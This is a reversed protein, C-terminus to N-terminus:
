VNRRWGKCYCKSIPRQTRRPFIQLRLGNGLKKRIPKEASSVLKREQRPKKQASHEPRSQKAESMDAAPSSCPPTGEPAIQWIEKLFLDEFSVEGDIAFRVEHKRKSESYKLIDAMYFLSDDPFLIRIVRGVIEKGSREENLTPWVFGIGKGESQAAAAEIAEKVEDKKTEDLIETVGRKVVYDVFGHCNKAGCMCKIQSEKGLRDWRYDFTLEEGASIERTSFFGIRIEAGVKWRRIECNPDCCHNMYRSVNAKRTADIFFNKGDDLEMIYRHRQGERHYERLRTHLQRQTLM